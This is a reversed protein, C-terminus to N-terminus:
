VMQFSQNAHTPLFTVNEWLSKPKQKTRRWNIIKEEQLVTFELDKKATLINWCDPISFALDFTKNKISIRIM